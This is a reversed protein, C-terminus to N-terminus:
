NDNEDPHLKSFHRDYANSGRLLIGFIPIGDKGLTFLFRRAFALLCYFLLWPRFLRQLFLGRRFLFRRPPLGLGWQRLPSFRGFFRWFLLRHGLLRIGLLRLGPLVSLLFGAPFLRGLSKCHSLGGALHPGIIEGLFGWSQRHFRVKYVLLLIIFTRM